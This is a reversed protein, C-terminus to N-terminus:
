RSAVVFECVLNSAFRMFILKQGVTCFLKKLILVSESKGDLESGEHLNKDFDM